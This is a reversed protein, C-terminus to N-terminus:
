SDLNFNCMCALHVTSLNGGLNTSVMRVHADDWCEGVRTSFEM